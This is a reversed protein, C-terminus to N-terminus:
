VLEDEIEKGSKEINDITPALVNRADANQAKGMTVLAREVAEESVETGNIARTINSIADTVSDLITRNAKLEYEDCEIYIVKM